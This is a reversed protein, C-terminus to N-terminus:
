YSEIKKVLKDLVAIITAKDREEAAYAKSRVSDYSLNEKAPTSLFPVIKRFVESMSRAEVVRAEDCARLFLAIQDTSLNVRIKDAPRVFAPSGTRIGKVPNLGLHLTKELYAIEQEFWNILQQSTGPQGPHLVLNQRSPLQRFEKLHFHLSDVREAKTPLTNVKRAIFHTFYRIYARSNYNIYILLEHLSNYVGSQPAAKPLQELRQVLERRYLLERLTVENNAAAQAFKYLDELLLGTFKPDAVDAILGKQLRDLRIKMEKQSVALYTVPVREDMSLFNAFRNEIFFLLEDLCAILNRTLNGYESKKFAKDQQYAVVTDLLIILSSHYKQVLLRVQSEKHLAFVENKLQSQIHVSEIAAKESLQQVTEKELDQLYMKQPNLTLSILTDLWELPYKQLM